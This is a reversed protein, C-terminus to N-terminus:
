KVIVWDVAMMDGESIIWTHFKDNRHIMLYQDRLLCYEDVDSWELRRVKKGAIIAGIASDFGLKEIELKKAPTQSLSVITTKKNKM